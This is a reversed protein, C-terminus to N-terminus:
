VELWQHNFPQLVYRASVQFLGSNIVQYGSLRRTSPSFTLCKFFYIIENVYIINQLILCFIEYILNLVFFRRNLGSSIRRIDANRIDPEPSEQYSSSSGTTARSFKSERTTVFNTVTMCHASCLVQGLWWLIAAEIKTKKEGFSM